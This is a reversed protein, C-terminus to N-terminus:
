GDFIVELLFEVAFELVEGLLEWISDGFGERGKRRLWRRLRRKLWGPRKVSGDPRLSCAEADSITLVQRFEGGGRVGCRLGVAGEAQVCVANGDADFGAMDYRVRFLHVEDTGAGPVPVAEAEQRTFSVCRRIDALQAKTLPHCLEEPKVGELSVDLGTLSVDMVAARLIEPLRAAWTKIRDAPLPSNDTM